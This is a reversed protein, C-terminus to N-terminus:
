QRKKPVQNANQAPAPLDPRPRGFQRDFHEVRHQAGIQARRPYQRALDGAAQEHGLCGPPDDVDRRGGNIFIVAVPRSEIRRGLARPDKMASIISPMSSRCPSMVFAIGRLVLTSFSRKQRHDRKRICASLASTIALDKAKCPRTPQSIAFCSAPRVRLFLGSLPSM